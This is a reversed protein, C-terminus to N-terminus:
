GATCASATCNITKTYTSSYLASDFIDVTITHAGVALSATTSYSGSSVAGQESAAGDVTIKVSKLAHTGQTINATVTYQTGGNSATVINNTFPKVDSCNHINDDANADYGDGAIINIKKTVPDQIQSVNVSIKASEPTCSTAKKKSIKDFIIQSNTEAQSKTFWSPFIDSRGGVSLTQIGAPQTFWDGIKWSGEQAFIDNHIPAMIKNITPGVISSLANSMPQTDHNGVWISTTVKTSVSNMWLDKSKNGLNSTGTKTFTKVGPVNLGSAGRGFSPARAIDDNLINQLIYAIQPDLVQKPEDKWAQIVHNQTNKVELVSAVPKYVGSRALTAFTNAHEIQKLGCGGIAAALGVQQDVGDTCYSKNGLDQITQISEKQGTIYMAKVAPINRSEALGSRISINGRFRHDFNELKAGYIKDIPEDSLVSGAGYNAQGAPKQKFLGAYVFPKISSGPQIFSIAANDQGYGPHNYNRSGQMALIQGTQNDIITVAGNDFNASEPLYSAFLSDMAGEVITQARSDLTTKVVLGGRGVTAKGLQSELQSRVMQVFHPAKINQYQDTEPKLTDIIAVKKADSAEKKTIDGQKVMADLVQHQRKLLEPHGAINYPDYQSPNQPLSALLAAEALTLDKASKAFYTQAASEVGNRRGGYPSENLYLNLIQDKNYMREVEVALIAEKFKRPVGSLGRNQSEDSFFVQKVLQQTLTSGGQTSGGSFNNYIARTIGSFSVGGHEYFDKDEIAVTAKKMFPSIDSSPVVLRYNGVGRDEWLLVGNRDTYKTVTTTVRKALESPRIADLERRYYAFVAGFALLLFLMSVGFIKFGMLLGERSFWYRLVRRPHLRHLSRTFPNKPLTSLYEAKKRHRADKKAKRKASLNSYVSLRREKRKFGGRNRIVRKYDGRLTIARDDRIIAGFLM